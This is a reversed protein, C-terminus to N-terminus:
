AFGQIGGYSENIRHKDHITINEIKLHEYLVRSESSTLYHMKNNSYVLKCRLVDGYKETHNLEFNISHVKKLSLIQRDWHNNSERFLCLTSNWEAIYPLYYPEELSSLPFNEDSQNSDEPLSQSKM